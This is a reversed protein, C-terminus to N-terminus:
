VRHQLRRGRRISLLHHMRHFAMDQSGTLQHATIMASPLARESVTNQTDIWPAHSSTEGRRQAVTRPIMLDFEIERRFKMM